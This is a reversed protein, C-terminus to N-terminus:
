PVLLSVPLAPSYECHIYSAMILMVLYDYHFSINLRNPLALELMKHRQILPLSHYLTILEGSVGMPYLVIFLSYRLWTSIYPAANYVNFGYYFYRTCEAICWAVLLLPVGVSDRAEPIPVLIGWVVVLRSLIQIFTQVPNSPVFRLAAHVVEMLQYTQFLTIVLSCHDWLARYSTVRGAAYLQLALLLGYGWSPSM